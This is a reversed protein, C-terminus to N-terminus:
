MYIGEKERQIGKEIRREEYVWKLHKTKKSKDM